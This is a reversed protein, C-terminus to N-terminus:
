RSSISMMSKSVAINPQIAADQGMPPLPWYFANAAGVAQTKPVPWGGEPIMEGGFTRAVDLIDNVLKRYGKFSEVLKEADSVGFLLGIELMPLETDAQDLEPFWKKSSWKSDLVLGTQADALM